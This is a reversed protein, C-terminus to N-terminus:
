DAKMQKLLQGMQPTDSKFSMWKLHLSPKHSPMEHLFPSTEHWLRIHNYFQCLESAVHVIYM